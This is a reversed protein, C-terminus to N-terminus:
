RAITDYENCAIDIARAHRAQFADIVHRAGTTHGCRHAEASHATSRGVSQFAMAHNTAATNFRLESQTNRRVDPFHDSVIEVSM